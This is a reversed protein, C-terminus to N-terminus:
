QFVDVDMFIEDLSVVFDEYLSVPIGEQAKAREEDDMEQLDLEDYIAYTEHIEFHGGENYYVEVTKLEPM